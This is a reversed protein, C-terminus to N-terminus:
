RSAAHEGADVVKQTVQNSRAVVVVLIQSGDLPVFEIRQLVARRQRFDRLGVHKAARSVLHSVGALLDDM